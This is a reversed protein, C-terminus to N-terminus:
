PAEPAYSLTLMATRGPLPYGWFDTVPVPATPAGGGLTRRGLPETTHNLVNRVDLEAHLGRGLAAGAAVGHFSRPPVAFWNTADQWAGAAFDWSTGVHARDGLPLRLSAHAELEPIRPLRKGAYAPDASQNRTRTWTASWRADVRRWDVAGGAEVGAVLARAVNAPSAVGQANQGYVILDRSLNAFGAAEVSAREGQVRVGADASWGQEPRLDPNGRVYGRDGFLETADPPRLYQGGNLKFVLGPRAQVLVGLRPSVAGVLTRESAASQAVTGRVAPTVVLREDLAFHSVSAAVTGVRRQMVAREGDAGKGGFHEHRGDAAATASWRANPAWTAHTHLGVLDSRDAGARDAGLTRDTLRETRTVMWPRVVVVTDGADVKAAVAALNRRLAYRVGDLPWGIPGPVGTQRDVFADFVTIQVRGRRWRARAHATTRAKDNNVRASVVDDDPNYLTGRDDTYAFDAATQFREAAVWIDANGSTAGGQAALRTTRWSGVAVSLSPPAEDGSVLNVVGGMAASGLEVPTNGRWVEVRDFARLPLEALNVASGGDPNLAMGDIMVEVQRVSSGRISIPSYDGLGGVRNVSVGPSGELATSLEADAPLDAVPLVTVVQSVAQALDQAQGVVVIEDDSVSGPAPDSEPDASLAPLTTLLLLLM